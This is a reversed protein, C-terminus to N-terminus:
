DKISLTIYAAEARQRPSASLLLSLYHLNFIYGDGMQYISTVELVIGILTDIYGKPDRELAKAQVELSAAADNCYDPAECWAEDETGKGIHQREELPENLVWYAKNRWWEPNLNVVRYGMLEALARNIQQDTMDLM